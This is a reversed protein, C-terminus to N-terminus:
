CNPPNQLNLAILKSPESPRDTLAGTDPYREMVKRIIEETRESGVEPLICDSADWPLLQKHVAYLGQPLDEVEGGGPQAARYELSYIDARAISISRYGSPSRGKSILDLNNVRLEVNTGRWMKYVNTILLCFAIFAVAVQETRSSIARCFLFAVVLAVVTWLLDRLRLTQNVRFVVGDRQERRESGLKM